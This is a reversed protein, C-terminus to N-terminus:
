AAAGEALVEEAAERRGELAGAMAAIAEREVRAVVHRTLGLKEATAVLSLGAQGGLGFRCGLVLRQRHTLGDMLGKVLRRVSQTHAAAVAEGAGPAAVLDGVCDDGDGVPRCLSDVGMLGLALRDAEAETVELQAATDATQPVLGERAYTTHLWGLRKLLDLYKPTPRVIWDATDITRGIRQRIWLTAYTSLRNGTSRDFKSIAHLLGDVGVAFLDVAQVRKTRGVMRGVEHFVLRVNLRVLSELAEGDGAEALSLLLDEETADLLRHDLRLGQEVLSRRLAAMQRRARTASGRM